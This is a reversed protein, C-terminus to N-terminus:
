PVQILTAEENEYEVPIDGVEWYDGTTECYYYETGDWDYYAGYAGECSLGVAAHGPLILFIADYGMAEIISAYLISLDECDGTEDYLTEVPFRWYEDSGESANDQSYRIGQVFSLVMNATQIDSYGKTTAISRLESAVAVVVQDSITFFVLMEATSDPWRTVDRSKYEHYTLGSIDVEIQLNVYGYTWQYTKTPIIPVVELSYWIIGDDDDSLQSGDKSGDSIGTIDDGTWNGTSIDFTVDLTRDSLSTGSIDIYDDESLMDDEMLAIKITTLKTNDDVNFRFDKNIAYENGVTLTWLEGINDIRPQLAGNVWVYFYVEATDEWLDVEDTVRVKNLGIKIGADYDKRLDTDDGFGDNDLDYPSSDSNDGIGDNDSDRWENPDDPFADQSDPYGD